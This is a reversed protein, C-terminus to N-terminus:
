STQLASSVHANYRNNGRYKVYNYLFNNIIKYGHPYLVHTSSMEILTFIRYIDLSFCLNIKNKKFSSYMNLFITRTYKFKKLRNSYDVHYLWLLIVQYKSDGYM